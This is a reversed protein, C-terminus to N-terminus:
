LARFVKEAKRLLGPERVVLEGLFAEKDQPSILISRKTAGYQVCLRDLSCAPGSLPSSTPFVETIERLSIRWRFPGSRIFLERATLIYLTGYTIWLILAAVAGFLVTMVVRSALPEATSWLMFVSDLVAVVGGWLVMVLWADRKSPYVTQVTDVSM